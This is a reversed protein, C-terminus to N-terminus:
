VTIASHGSSVDPPRESNVRARYQAPTSFIRRGFFTELRAIARPTPERKGAAIKRVLSLSLGTGSALQSHDIGRTILLL